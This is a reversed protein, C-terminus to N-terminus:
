SRLYSLSSYGTGFDDMSLKVGMDRFEHLIALTLKSDVLLVSETIELELRNPALESANLAARVQEVLGRNKFQAPSLNVAVSIDDPWNAAAICAERLVWDGIQVILGTEEAVPIFEAPGS